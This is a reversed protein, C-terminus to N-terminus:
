MFNLRSCRQNGNQRLAAFPHLIPATFPQPSLARVAIAGAIHQVSEFLLGGVRKKRQDLEVIGVRAGVLDIKAHADISGVLPRGRHEARDLRGFPLQDGLLIGLGVEARFAVHAEDM